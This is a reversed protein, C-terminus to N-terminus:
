DDKIELGLITFLFNHDLDPFHPEPSHEACRM